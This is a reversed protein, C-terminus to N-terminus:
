KIQKADIYITIEDCYIEKFEEITEFYITYQHETKSSANFRGVNSFIYLIQEGEYNIFSYEMEQEESVLTMKIKDFLPSEKPYSIIVSYIIAVESVNYEDYNTVIFSYQNNSQSKSLTLSTNNIIEKTKVVFKAVNANDSINNNVSMKALIISSSAIWLFLFVSLFVVLVRPVKM